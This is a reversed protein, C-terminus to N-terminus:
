VDYDSLWTPRRTERQSRRLGISHVDADDDGVSVVNENDAVHPMVQDGADDGTNQTQVLRVDAIHRPIGDIEVVNQHEDRTVTGITWQTTCRASPPKLYVRDGRRFRPVGDMTEVVTARPYRWTYAYVGRAPSADESVGERPSGNYWYVAEAVSKDTRAVMQKITRHHREVIGNGSPRYAARFHIHVGWRQCLDLVWHSRFNTGNDSIIEIPPGRELFIERLKDATEKGSEGTLERWIAFRSPGCDIVSLYCKGELHTVDVALRQWTQEVELTGPIWHCPAPDISMCRDCEAVIKRVIQKSVAENPYKQTVWYYTKEVGQHTVDHVNKIEAHSVMAVVAAGEKKLWKQPVRTMEDAKNMESKVLEITVNLASEQVATELIALRRRVLVENMGKVHIRHERTLLNTVWKFVTASDTKVVITNLGWKVALNVGHLVAELEAVNIHMVDGKKRLWSADEVIVAGIELKVGVALSSADCWVVGANGSAVCWAGGVPDREKVRVDIEQIVQLEESLIKDHWQLECIRRKLYSCAVRLWGAIPYHGILKGCWSYVEKKSIEGDPLTITNDRTWMLAGDRGRSVRLGLIRGGELHEPAKAELGFQRLHSIVEDCTVVTENVIIDDVYSDTGKKIRGDSSLVKNVVASMIRPAVSLGFGLRTLCYRRGGHEVVQYKWLSPLVRLQLYAKKLDVMKVEEGWRRWERLKEACVEADGTKSRVFQNLERFDLVPRVKGKSEQVVALLPVIGDCEGEFPVLWGDSIWQQIERDFEERLGEAIKYEGVRNTLTPKCGDHFKWGVVWRGMSFEACFDDEDIKCSVTGESAAAAVCGPAGFKVEGHRSVMVGGLKSIADMGLLLAVDGFLETVLCRMVVSRSGVSVHIDSEVGCEIVRGDMTVINHVACERTESVISPRVISRSCGTDVLAVM